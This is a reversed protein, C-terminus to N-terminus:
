LNEEEKGFSMAEIYTTMFEMNSSLEIYECAGLIKRIEEKGKQEQLYKVGGALSTNGAIVVKEMLPKPLLGIEVSNQINMYAGFGGAIVVQDVEEYTIGAYSLLIDIGAAISAKALQVQRIDEPYIGIGASFMVEKAMYGSVDVKQERLLYAV